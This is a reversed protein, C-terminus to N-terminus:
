KAAKMKIIRALFGPHFPVLAKSVILHYKIHKHQRLSTELACIEKPRVIRFLEQSTDQVLQMKHLRRRRLVEEQIMNNNEQPSYLQM